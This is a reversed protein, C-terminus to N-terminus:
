QVHGTLILIWGVLFRIGNTLFSVQKSSKTLDFAEEFLKVLRGLAFSIVSIVPALIVDLAFTVGQLVSGFVAGFIKFLPILDTISEQLRDFFEVIGGKIGADFAAIIGTDFAQTVRQTAAPIAKMAAAM